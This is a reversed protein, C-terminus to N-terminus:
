ITASALFFLTNGHKIINGEILNKEASMVSDGGKTGKNM